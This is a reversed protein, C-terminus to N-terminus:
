VFFIIAGAELDETRSHTTEWWVFLANKAELMKFVLGKFLDGAFEVEGHGRYFEVEFLGPGGDALIDVAVEGMRHTQGQQQQYCNRLGFLYEGKELM